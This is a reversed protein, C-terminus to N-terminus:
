RTVFAVGPGPTFQWTTVARPNSGWNMSSAIVHGNGLVQEVVAVHGIASAGQVNPQLVMIDGVEPAQSVRWGFQYARMTWQWANAQVRWPVFFGHIQDYRQNAWWTCQGYPFDNSYGVIPANSSRALSSPMALAAYITSVRNSSAHVSSTHTSFGNGTHPICLLQHSYIFNTNTLHNYRALALWNIGYRAGIRSLTDGAVVIHTRDGASCRHSSQAQVRM